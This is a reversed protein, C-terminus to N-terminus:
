RDRLLRAMFAALIARYFGGRGAKAAPDLAHKIGGLRLPQAALEIAILGSDLSRKESGELLKALNLALARAAGM